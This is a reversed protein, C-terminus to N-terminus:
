LSDLRINCVWDWKSFFRIFFIM